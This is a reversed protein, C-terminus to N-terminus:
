LDGDDWVYSNNKYDFSELIENVKDNFNETEPVINFILTFCYNNYNENIVCKVAAVHGWTGYKMNHKTGVNTFKTELLNTIPSEDDLVKNTIKELERELAGDKPKGMLLGSYMKMMVIDEYKLNEM